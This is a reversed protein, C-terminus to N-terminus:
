RTVYKLNGDDQFLVAKIGDNPSPLRWREKKTWVHSNISNVQREWLILTGKADLELWTGDAEYEQPIAGERGRTLTVKGKPNTIWFKGDRVTLVWPPTADNNYSGEKLIADRGAVD